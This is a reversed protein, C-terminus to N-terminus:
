EGFKIAQFLLFTIVKQLRSPIEQGALLLFIAHICESFLRLRTTFVLEVLNVTKGVSHATSCKERKMGICRTPLFYVALPSRFKPALSASNPKTVPGSFDALAVLAGETTV